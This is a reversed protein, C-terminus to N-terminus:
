SGPKLNVLARATWYCDISGKPRLCILRYDEGLKFEDEVFVTAGNEIHICNNQRLFQEGAENDRALGLQMFRHFDGAKKCGYTERLQDELELVYPTGRKFEETLEGKLQVVYPTGRKFDDAGAINVGMTLLAALTALTKHPMTAM